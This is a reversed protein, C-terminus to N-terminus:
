MMDQPDVDVALKVSPYKGTQQYQYIAERVATRIYRGAPDKIKSSRIVMQFRFLNKIRSLPSAAPGLCLYQSSPKILDAFYQAANRATTESESKFRILIIRGWPPYFLAKRQESEWEYFGQYNHQKSLQLIPHEPILTQVLVEGQENRRGARGGAQTLLQFTREGARFDPFHIETDASIIGVLQVKQFDHGKAVMQTGLLIDGEGKEFLHIIKDHAGKKQTTDLDMRLIKAEPFRKKLSDEVKQTGIGRFSLTSGDCSPCTDPAAKEFGCYHCRLVHQHQHYTLTIDCNPCHEVHGCAFCRLFTAFGRRNQLLIVQQRKDLRFEIKQLLDPSLIRYIELKSGSHDSDAMQKSILTVEPLPVHDIRHTLTCLTYKGELANAYSELSPTASGLIVPANEMKGRMIAVDRAHYRPAPDMQKYSTDQEEDVIILGLNNLPAFIASRPGLAIKAKGDKLRRWSDFREGHSMRSHLM